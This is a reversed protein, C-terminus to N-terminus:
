NMFMQRMELQRGGRNLTSRCDPESGSQSTRQFVASDATAENSEILNLKAQPPLNNLENSIQLCYARFDIRDEDELVILIKIM